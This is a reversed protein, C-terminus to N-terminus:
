KASPTGSIKHLFTGDKADIFYYERNAIGKVLTVVYVLCPADPKAFFVQIESGAVHWGEPGGPVAEFARKAAEQNTLKPTTNINVSPEINGNVMYVENDRNLHIIIDRGWIPVDNVVQQVKIHKFKMDDVTLKIKKLESRPDILMLLGRQSELFRYVIEMHLNEKKLKQFGPDGDLAYSLNDGKILSPTGNDRYHITANDLKAEKPTTVFRAEENHKDAGASSHSCGPQSLFLLLSFAVLIGASKHWTTHKNRPSENVHHIKNFGKVNQM